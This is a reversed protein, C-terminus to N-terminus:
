DDLVFDFDDIDAGTTTCSFSTDYRRDPYTARIDSDFRYTQGGMADITVATLKIRTGGTAGVNAATRDLCARLGNRARSEVTTFDAEITATGPTRSRDDNGDRALIAILGAAVAVGGIILATDGDSRYRPVYHGVGYAFTARCNNNVWIRNRDYGWGNGFRCRGNHRKELVVRGHTPVFCNRFRGGYSECRVTDAFYRGSTPYQYGWNPRFM